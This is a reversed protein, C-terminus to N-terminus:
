DQALGAPSLGCHRIASQDLMHPLGGRDAPVFGLSKQWVEDDEMCLYILVEPALDRIWSVMKQYLQIRLPKFYRLKGDLGAIFEGYIIKSDPFRTQITKKLAPMFRLTGLSIWVIQDAAVHTFISKIVELYEAECGDYIVMPDFHFALPYGWSGCRAAARLRASLSATCREEQTIVRQTNLSWATITKNGHNLRKLGEIAITKTKLELVASNQTSFLTVLVASLDTWWEWILSDTFEGTGIRAIKQAAFVKALEARLDQHNVFYQLMPPHFYSQLICYACDMSCYAGIHLIKYGCCNYFRTGPCKKIFAGKNPTLFLIEKGKEVPDDAACVKDFLQQAQSVIESPVNLRSQIAMTERLHTVQADIYLKSIKM